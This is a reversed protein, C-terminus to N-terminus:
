TIHYTVFMRFTHCMHSVHSVYTIRTFFAVVRCFYTIRTIFRVHKATHMGCCTIHIVFIQYIYGSHCMLYKGCMDCTNDNLIVPHYLGMPHREKIPRHRCFHGISLPDKAFFSRCSLVDWPDEGGMMWRDSSSMVICVLRYHLEQVHTAAYPLTNCRTAAHHLTTCRPAAHQLTSCRPAAHHMTNCHLM